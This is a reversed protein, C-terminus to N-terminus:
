RFGLARRVQPARDLPLFTFNRRKLLPVLTQVMELTQDHDQQDPHESSDHMLVIGRGLLEIEDLYRAACEEASAGLRWCEWDEAVIDWHIPGVHNAALPTQNLIEAVISTEKDQDSEPTVKERWNGYPPRVLVAESLVNPLILETTRRIEGVVDGGDMAVAVLSPHSYSHNGILHGWAALQPVIEPHEEVHRGVVFFTAPVLEEYLYRGLALSSSEKGNAVGNGGDNFTFCLTRRPLDNAKIDRDYFM